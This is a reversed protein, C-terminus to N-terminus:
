FFPTEIFTINLLNMTFAMERDKVSADLVNSAATSIPVLETFM